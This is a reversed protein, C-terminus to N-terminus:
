VAFLRCARPGDELPPGAAAPSSGAARRRQLAPPLHVRDRIGLCRPFRGSHPDSRPPRLDPRHAQRAPPDAAGPPSQRGASPRPAAPPNGPSKRFRLNGAYAHSRERHSTACRAALARQPQWRSKDVM